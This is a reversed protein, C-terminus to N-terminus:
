RFSLKQIIFKPFFPLHYIISPFYFLNYSVRYVRRAVKHMAMQALCSLHICFIPGYYALLSQKDVGECLADVPLFEIGMETCYLEDDFIQESAASRLM